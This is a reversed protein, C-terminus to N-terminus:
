TTISGRCAMRVKIGGDFSLDHMLGRWLHADWPPIKVKAYSEILRKFSFSFTQRNFSSNVGKKRRAHLYSDMDEDSMPGQISKYIDPIWACLAGVVKSEELDVSFRLMLTRQLRNVDAWLERISSPTRRLLVPRVPRGNLWDTGCSERVPGSLFSKSGNIKFGSKRLVSILYPVYRSKVILDDGYVAFDNYDIRNPGSQDRMVGFVLSAFILSEIAFTFGNGMSSIKEYSIVEGNLDGVPSRLSMLLDYWKPPLLWKCIGLSITDSAAALDLTCFSEQSDCTSGQRALEQNKEQSDLDVGFSKLRRRVFGDVGLQLMLNMAPEIAISRKIDANKPVFTIRNGPVCILFTDWFDEWDVQKDIFSYVPAGASYGFACLISNDVCYKTLLSRFWREDSRILDKAAAMADETVTYPFGAYKFYSSTKGNVTSLTAGPGHRARKWLEDQEPPLEGLVRRIFDRSHSWVALEFEENRTKRPFGVHNVERCLSEAARFKKIAAEEQAKDSGPFEFKGLLATLQYKARFRLLPTDTPDISQLGWAQALKQYEGFDKNRIITELTKNESATLYEALDQHLYGLVAWPYNRPVAPRVKKLSTRGARKLHKRRKMPKSKVKM